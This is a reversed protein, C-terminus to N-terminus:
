QYIDSWEALHTEMDLLVATGSKSEHLEENVIMMQKFLVELPAAPSVQDM